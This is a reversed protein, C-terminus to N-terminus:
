EEPIYAKVSIASEKQKDGTYLLGIQLNVGTSPLQDLNALNELVLGESDLGLRTLLNSAPDIGEETYEHQRDIGVGAVKREALLFPTVTGDCTPFAFQGGPYLGRRDWEKKWGTYLLVVSGRPIRGHKEEWALLHSVNITHSPDNMVPERVDVVVAPVELVQSSFTGATSSSGSESQSSSQHRARQFNVRDKVVDATTPMLEVVKAATVPTVVSLSIAILLLLAVYMKYTKNM